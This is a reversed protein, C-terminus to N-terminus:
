NAQRLARYERELAKLRYAMETTAGAHRASEAEAKKVWKNLTQAVCGIESSISVIACWRSGHQGQHHDM